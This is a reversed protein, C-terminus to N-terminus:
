LDLLSKIFESPKLILESDHVIAEGRALIYPRLKVLIHQNLTDNFLFYMLALEKYQRQDFMMEVGSDKESITQAHNTILERYIIEQIKPYTTPQLWYTADREEINLTTNTAELYAPCDLDKVRM